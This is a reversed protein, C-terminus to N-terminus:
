LVGLAAVLVAPIVGLMRQASVVPNQRGGRVGGVVTLESSLTAVMRLETGGESGPVGSARHM